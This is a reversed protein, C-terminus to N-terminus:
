GSADEDLIAIGIARMVAREILGIRRPSLKSGLPEPDLSDKPITAIQECHLM